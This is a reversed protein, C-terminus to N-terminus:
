CAPPPPRDLGHRARVVYLPRGKVEDYIRALYEGIVGLSILQIGGLFLVGVIVSAYGPIDIGYLLTRAVLYVAHLLAAGAILVGVYGWVKLPVSSFAFLGDLGFNWLRWFGWHSTGSARPARDFVISTHRFGVWAFLGKMFRTREPMRKVADVVPRAMLRFDGAGDPINVSSMRGILRYFGWAFFRRPASEDVRQRHVATVVEFGARWQAILEPILEPPHQLDADLPIVAEGRAHDLGATLAIEKGFNRSLDIVVLRPEQERLALLRALTDDSSGDNVCIAEWDLGTAELVPFLRAFLAALGAAENHMPIVVSLQM